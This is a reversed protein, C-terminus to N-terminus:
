QALSTLEGPWHARITAAAIAATITADIVPKFPEIAIPESWGVEALAATIEDFPDLGTGPAGRNTDNLQIHAIGGRPVQTRILDAVRLVEAQGAASADIMTQFAPKDVADVLQRADAVTNIFGTEARSLPEICYTVGDAAAADAIPAFFGAARDMAEETSMGDPVIRSSPSGHVLVTGGLRACQTILALLIESTAEAKQPDLISADPYPALLWHLGTVSLGEANITRRIDDLASDSLRHPEAALSGPALELGMYGLAKAIRCQAALNHGEDALMENCLSLRLPPTM